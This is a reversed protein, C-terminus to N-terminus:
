IMDLIKKPVYYKRGCHRCNVENAKSGLRQSSGCHPCDVEVGDEGVHVTAAVAYSTRALRRCEGAEEWKGLKEYSQSADEYRGAKMFNDIDQELKQARELNAATARAGRSLLLQYTAGVVWLFVAGLILFSWVDAYWLTGYIRWRFSM